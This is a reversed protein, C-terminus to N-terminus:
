QPLMYMYLMYIYMYMYVAARPSDVLLRAVAEVDVALGAGHLHVVQTVAVCGRRQEAGPQQQQRWLLAAAEDRRVRVHRPQRHHATRRRAARGRARVAHAVVVESAKSVDIPPSFPTALDTM